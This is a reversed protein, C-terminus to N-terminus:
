KNKGDNKTVKGGSGYIYSRDVVLDIMNLYILTEIHPEYKTNIGSSSAALILILYPDSNRFFLSFPPQFIQVFFTGKQGWDKISNNKYVWPRFYTPDRRFTIELSALLLNMGSLLSQPSYIYGYTLVWISAISVLFFLCSAWPTTTASIAPQGEFVIVRDALYTAM